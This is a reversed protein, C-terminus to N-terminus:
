SVEKFKLKWMKLISMLVCIAVECFQTWALFTGLFLMQCIASMWHVTASIKVLSKFLSAMMWVRTTTQDSLWTWSKPVGHDAAHWTERDKVIDQLTNLSMDISDAISDLWRTRHRGTRRRGEIKGLMLTKEISNARWMLHGRSWHWDKWHTSLTSKRESQSTQDELQGLSEGSDEGAGLNSLM